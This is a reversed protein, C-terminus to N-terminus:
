FRLFLLAFLETNRATHLVGDGDASNKRIPNKLDSVLIGFRPREGVNVVGDGAFLVFGTHEEVIRFQQISEVGACRGFDRNVVAADVFGLELAADQQGVPIVAQVFVAMFKIFHQGGLDGAGAVANHPLTVQGDAHYLAVRVFGTAVKGTDSRIQHRV